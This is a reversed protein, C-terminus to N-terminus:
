NAGRGEPTIHSFLVCLLGGLIGAMFCELQEDPSLDRYITTQFANSYVQWVEVRFRDAMADFPDNSDFENSGRKM